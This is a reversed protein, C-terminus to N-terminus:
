QSLIFLLMKDYARRIDYRTLIGVLKKSGPKEVVPLRGVGNDIMKRFATYLSEDPYTVILKRSMVTSAPTTLRDRPPVKLIDSLTVIGVLLGESDVIPVGKIGKESMLEALEALSTDEHATIVERVMADRVTIRRLIPVSYEGRHAPSHPRSRVQARYITERGTVVYSIACSIMSPVLLNYTGTMESVMLITAIFAKGVGGFFCMMGVVILAAPPVEVWPIMTDTLYWTLAGISGGIVLSPAFVGGSGGSGISLSTALIKAFPLLLLVILPISRVDLMLLQLWGYGTGLVQPMFLGLVGVLLGGIAPKLYQPMKLKNFFEESGYFARVYLRGVLGSILGLLVFVLLSLPHLSGIKAMGFIPKWGTLSGYISYAITSAIFAPIIVDVEFDQMYLIESALLAGGFPAKFISGIGSGIGVAVAIRRDRVNLHLIRALLSGVGASTQAVPGERGASGGSGITLASALMKVIPVRSRIIGELNHFADIAADTGHGKTEPALKYILLGSLLGGIFTVLPLTLPNSPLVYELSGEGLPEPPDYGGLRVLLLSTSFKLLFSFVYSSLGAAVGIMVAIPIWKELYRVEALLRSFRALM